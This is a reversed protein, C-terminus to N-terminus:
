LATGAEVVKELAPLAEEIDTLSVAGVSLRFWGTDEPVGFAQFPVAAFNAEHLLYTRIEENTRLTTGAPTRLGGLAFQASLYIAGAPPVADVPLGRGKMDNIGRYLSELRQQLAAKMTRHYEAIADPSTLLAATAVQEPRPAWSGVHGIFDGMRQILDTPGLVWGVRLGTAAFSKSIADVSITYPAIAPRLAVPTVHEVDGFTLMWYVQDYLLYLPRDRGARRANEELVLDCIATLTESDIVTGTPNLPSNLVLMRAGRIVPELMARTPQFSTSADCEVPVGQAGILQCYYANNWSPVSYVVREGPDVLTRYAAYIAPRAGSTVLVSDSPYDVGLGARSFQRIAERLVPMGFGPPYNTEGKRLAEEIGTKLMGPIPFQRSDFDGVTLNCIRRGQATLARVDAAVKLIASGMMGEAMASVRRSSPAPSSATPVSTAGASPGNRVLPPTRPPLTAGPADPQQTM